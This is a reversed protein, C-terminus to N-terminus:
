PQVQELALTLAEKKVADLLNDLARGGKPCYAVALLTLPHVGLVGALEDVKPLTPSKLGRELSSIYTRSSVVDFEEQAIGKARRLTRLAIPFSSKIQRPM